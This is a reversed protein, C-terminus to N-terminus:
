RENRVDKRSEVAASGHPKRLYGIAGPTNEVKQRMAAESNVTEPAFGTGTYVMRDWTERLVYPYIGLVERSFQDHVDSTDPLVFVHVPTGDPWERKRMTFIARLTNRDLEVGRHEPSSIIEIADGQADVSRASILLLLAALWLSFRRAPAPALRAGPM